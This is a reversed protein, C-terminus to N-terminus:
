EGGGNLRAFLEEAEDRGPFQGDVALAVELADVAGPRDGLGNLAVALHYAVGPHNNSGALAARLLTAAEQFQGDEALIWGLTDAIDYRDPAAAYAERATAEAKEDGAWQYLWALNNLVDANEGDAIAAYRVKAEEFREAEFLRDALLRLVYRDEPHEALWDELVAIARDINNFSYELQSLLIHGDRPMKGHEKLLRKLSERAELRDGMLVDTRAKLFQVDGNDPEMEIAETAVEHAQTFQREQILLRGLFLRILTSKDNNARAKELINIAEQNQGKATAERALMIAVRENGPDAEMLDEYYQVAEEPRGEERALSALQGVAPLNTPDLKLASQFAQVASGRDGMALYAAGLMARAGASSTDRETLDKAAELAGEADGQELRSRILVLEAQEYTPDIESAKRLQKEAAATDGAAMLSVALQTRLDSREPARKVAAALYHTAASHQGLRHYAYGLLAVGQTDLLDPYESLIDAADEPANMGLYIRALINRASINGATAPDTSRIYRLLQEFAQNTLGQDNLAIGLLLNTPQYNITFKQSQRLAAVADELNGREYEVVGKLYHLVLADPYSDLLENSVAMAEEMKEQVVLARVVGIGGLVQGGATNRARQFSELAADPMDNSIQIEGQALLADRHTPDLALAIALHELAKEYDSTALVSGMGRQADVINQDAALATEFSAEAAETDFGRLYAQGQIAILEPTPSEMAGIEGLVEQYRNLRLKARLLHPMVEARPHGLDLARELENVANPGNAAREYLVGLHFRAEALDPNQQLANKLEIVAASLENTEIYGLARQLHEEPSRSCGMLAIVVLFSTVLARM